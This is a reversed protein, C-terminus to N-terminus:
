YKSMINSLFISKLFNDGRKYLAIQSFEVNFNKNTLM